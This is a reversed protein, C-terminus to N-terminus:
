ANVYIVVSSSQIAGAEKVAIQVLPAQRAARATQAQQAIPQSYIYYGFQSINAYLDAQNGFTTPSTWSGPALYQNTVGQQCVGRYAGKLGDMGPETQPIKTSTQALYNFGAVQLAGVFWQLNYVQDYFKNAGNCIVASDGQISPYIDAGSAKAENYITQSMSPDPQITNLTKLNMTITTLSGSFNVSLALGAYASMMLVANFGPYGSQASSDGYYLGRSQSFSGTRLLDIMGGPQIDAEVYGVWFAIKNLAQVVAAAALLDVSGIGYTADITESVMIGFYQVLSATRTIAAAISEGATPISNTITISAPASTMLSNSTFTFAAPAAGYVGGMSISVTESAISGSVTIGTLGPIAQLKTQIASASDNWNIAASAHGNWNAVFTGSAAIGSFAWQETAVGLLIVVLQGDGALINPQQSFVALAMQYTKSATGFDTAVSTPDVYLKYGLSGFSMAPIEDTFLGLNSTNYANVGLNAQSVSINIINSIALQGM